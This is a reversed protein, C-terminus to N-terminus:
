RIERHFLQLAPEIEALIAPVCTHRLAPARQLL